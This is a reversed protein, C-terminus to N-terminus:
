LMEMYYDLMIIDPYAEVFNIVEQLVGNVVSKSTGVCAIGITALQHLDQNAVESVSVNFRDRLRDMLGKLVRRKGKLNDNCPIEIVIQLTGVIM